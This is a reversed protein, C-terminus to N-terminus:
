YDPFNSGADVPTKHSPFFPGIVLTLKLEPLMALLRERWAPACEPRPPLDGGTGTGPFCLGMPLIAVKEADYFATSHIGMWQRLREGSADSFPIGSDHARRGPAQGAVLIKARPDLQLIPRPALPLHGACFTCGRVERLTRAVVRASPTPNPMVNPKVNPKVNPMVNPMVAM